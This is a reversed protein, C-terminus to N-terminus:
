RNNKLSPPSSFGKIKSWFSPDQLPHSFVDDAAIKQVMVLGWNKEKTYEMKRKQKCGKNNCQRCKSSFFWEVFLLADLIMFM